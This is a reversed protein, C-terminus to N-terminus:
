QSMPLVPAVSDPGTGIFLVYVAYIAMVAILIVPFTAMVIIAPGFPYKKGLPEDKGEISLMILETASKTRATKLSM